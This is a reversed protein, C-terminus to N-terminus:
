RRVDGLHELWRAFNPIREHLPQFQLGSTSSLSNRGHREFRRLRSGGRPIAYLAVTPM